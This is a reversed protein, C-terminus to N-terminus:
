TLQTTNFLRNGTDTGGKGTFKNDSERLAVLSFQEDQILAKLGQSICQAQIVGAVVVIRITAHLSRIHQVFQVVTKGSNIVSDVLIVTLKGTLLDYTMDEPRHAHLFMALPFAANVGFAMAEGGRMLAVVMTQREHLLRYGSTMHGQVHPIPYEEVGLVESLLETALYWGVFWHAERLRPGAVTADRMPTM